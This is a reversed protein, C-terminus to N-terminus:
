VKAAGFQFVAGFQFFDNVCVSSQAPDPIASLVQHGLDWDESRFM